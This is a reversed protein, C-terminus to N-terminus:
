FLISECKLEASNIYFHLPWYNIKAMPIGRLRCWPQCLLFIQM